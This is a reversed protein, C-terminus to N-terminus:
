IWGPIPRSGTLAFARFAEPGGTEIMPLLYDLDALQEPTLKGRAWKARKRVLPYMAAKPHVGLVALVMLELTSYEMRNWLVEYHCGLLHQKAHCEVCLPALNLPWDESCRGAIHGKAIIHHAEVAVKGCLICVRENRM